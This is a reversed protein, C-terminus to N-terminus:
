KGFMRRFIKRIDARCNAIPFDNILAFFDFLCVNKEKADGDVETSM